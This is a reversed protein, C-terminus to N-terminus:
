VSNRVGCEAGQVGNEYLVEAQAIRFGPADDEVPDVQGKLLALHGEKEAGAAGALAGEGKGEVSKNGV